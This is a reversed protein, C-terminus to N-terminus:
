KEFKKNLNNIEKSGCDPCNTLDQTQAIVHDEGCKSCRHLTQSFDVNGGEIVLEMGDIIAQAVKHRAKEILRSFTPRSINMKVSADNHDKGIYDALRIAEFEDLTLVVCQLMRRPVGAPKFHQYKPPLDVRRKRYSKRM